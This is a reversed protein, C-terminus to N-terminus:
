IGAAEQIAEVMDLREWAFSPRGFHGYASTPSFVPRTLELREIISAPRFDFVEGVIAEISDPAVRDTGFTEVHISFPESRGIAYSLQIELKSAVGAAM